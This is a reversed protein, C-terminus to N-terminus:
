ITEGLVRLRSIANQVTNAKVNVALATKRIDRGMARYVGLIYLDGETPRKREGPMEPTGKPRHAPRAEDTHAWGPKVPPRHNISAAIPAKHGGAAQAARGAETVGNAAMSARRREEALSAMAAVTPLPANKRTHSCQSSPVGEYYCIPDYGEPWERETM